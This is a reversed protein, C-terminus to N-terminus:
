FHWFDCLGLLRRRQGWIGAPTFVWDMREDHEESSWDQATIQFDYALGIRLLNPCTKLFRDYFGKGFGIREGAPGFVLGPVLICSFGRGDFKKESQPEDGWRGKKLDRLDTVQLFDMQDGDIKPFYLFDGRSRAWHFFKKTPVEGKIERYLCWHMGNPASQFYSLIQEGARDQAEKSLELRKKKFTERLSTKLLM